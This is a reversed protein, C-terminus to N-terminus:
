VTVDGVWLVFAPVVGCEVPWPLPAQKCLFRSVNRGLCMGGSGGSQSSQTASKFCAPSNALNKTTTTEAENEMSFYSGGVFM